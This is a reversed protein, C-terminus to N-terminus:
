CFWFWSVRAVKSGMCELYRLCAFSTLLVNLFYNIYNAISKSILLAHCHAPDIMSGACIDSLNSFYIELQVRLCM